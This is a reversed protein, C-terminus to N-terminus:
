GKCCRQQATLQSFSGARPHFQEPTVSSPILRSPMVVLCTGSGDHLSPHYPALPESATDWFPRQGIAEHWFDLLTEATQRWGGNRM